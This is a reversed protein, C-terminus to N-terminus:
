EVLRVPSVKRPLCYNNVFEFVSKKLEKETLRGRRDAILMTYLYDGSEYFAVGDQYYIIKEM